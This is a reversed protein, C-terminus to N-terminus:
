QKGEILHISYYKENQIKNLWERAPNAIYSTVMFAVHKPKEADAWAIKSTLKDVPVGGSHHKCEIFWKETYNGLLPNTLSLYAEIDRGSDAGGQRWTLSHFGLKLLLDFCLEEFETPNIKEFDIDSEDFLM